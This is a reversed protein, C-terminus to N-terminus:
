RRKVESDYREDMEDDTEPDQHEIEKIAQQMRPDHEREGWARGEALQRRVEDAPIYKQNHELALVGEEGPRADPQRYQEKVVRKRGWSQSEGYWKSESTFRTSFSIAKGLDTNRYNRNRISQKQERTLDLPKSLSSQQDQGDTNEQSKKSSEIGKPM